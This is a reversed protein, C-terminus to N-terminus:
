IKLRVWTKEMHSVLDFVYGINKLTAAAQIIM